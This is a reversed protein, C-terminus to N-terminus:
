PQVDDFALPHDSHANEIRISKKGALLDEILHGVLEARWGRALSPSPASYRQGFGLRYAILDRVDSATGVLSAAVDAKHCISSLAPTLFQGLLNLQPPMEQTRPLSPESQPAHLGRRVCDSIQAVSKRWSGHNFGRISQIKNPEASKRKAIEVMLDDRLARRPPVNRREAEQERWLWIERLISLSKGSLSGVGSVRRWRQRTPSALVEELWSQMEEALWEVRQADRLRGAIAKHLPLLYRVDELAYELQANSLPRRRWDTRTEGKDVKHGLYRSVLTGYAAPYDPGVLGAAIQVDFLNAPPTGAALACFNLEERGAHVISAHEGTALTRWLISLDELKLADVLALEDATAVQVLCLEPRYTDESVFETDFGIRDAARLRRCLADLDPRTTILPPM